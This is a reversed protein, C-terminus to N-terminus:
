WLVKKRIRNKPIQREEYVEDTQGIILGCVPTFDAPLYLEKLIDPRQQLAMVAGWICCSGVHLDVSELAMNHVIMAANSYAVNDAPTGNLKTSVLILTPAGYLPHLTADQFYEAAALDIEHLLDSNTIITLYVSDYDGRGVPAANAALLIKELQADTAPIGTYSRVSKRQYITNFTNM